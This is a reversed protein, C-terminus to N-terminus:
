ARKKGEIFGEENMKAAWDPHVTNEIPILSVLSKATKNLAIEEICQDIDEPDRICKTPELTVVIDFFNGEKELGEIAYLVSGTVPSNDTALEQLNLFPVEVGYKKSIKAIEEDEVIVIVKDAYKSQKAQEISWAILPKGLLLKINKGPLGKSGARAPIIIIVRLGNIM